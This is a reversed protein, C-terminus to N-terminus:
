SRDEDPFRIEVHLNNFVPDGLTGAHRCVLGSPLGALRIPHGEAITYGRVLLRIFRNCLETARESLQPPVARMSLDPRGFKRLGRTYLWLRGPATDDESVLIVAEQDPRPEDPEWLEERWREASRWTLTQSDLVATGGHDLLAAITGAADRLYLLDPPDSAEGRLVVCEPASRVAAAVEAPLEDLSRALAPSALLRDLEAADEPRALRRMELWEPNRLVRHKRADLELPLRFRGFVAYLVLASGGGPTWFSRHWGEPLRSAEVAREYTDSQM